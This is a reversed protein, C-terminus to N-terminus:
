LFVIKGAGFRLNLEREKLNQRIGHMQDLYETSSHNRRSINLDMSHDLLKVLNM